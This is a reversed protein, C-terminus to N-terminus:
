IIKVKSFLSVHHASRSLIHALGVQVYFLVFQINLIVEVGVLM